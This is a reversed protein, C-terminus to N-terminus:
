LPLAAYSSPLAQGPKIIWVETAGDEFLLLNNPDTALWTRLSAHRPIELILAIPRNLQLIKELSLRRIENEESNFLDKVISRRDAIIQEGYGRVNALLDISSMNVGPRQEEQEPPAFLRRQTLTPLHIDTSEIVLLTNPTTGERIVDCMASMFENENLRLDFSTSEVSPHRVSVSPSYKYVRRWPFDRYIKHVFPTVLVLVLVAFVGVTKAKFRERIKETALAAFPSMCIAATFLFKYENAWFPIELLLNL